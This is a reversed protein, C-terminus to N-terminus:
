DGKLEIKHDVILDKDAVFHGMSEIVNIVSYISTASRIKKNNNLKTIDINSDFEVDIIHELTEIVKIKM